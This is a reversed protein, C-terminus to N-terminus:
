LRRLNRADMQVRTQAGLLDLLLWIRQDPLVTEVTAIFDAFPGHCPTVKDGPNPLPPAEPAADEDFRQRLDEILSSPVPVPDSGRCVLRTIGYTSNVASLSAADATQELFLYGPFVPRLQTSFAGRARRTELRQPLFVGFGQRALNRAAINHSNPKFQALYWPTLGTVRQM